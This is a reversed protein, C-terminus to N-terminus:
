GAVKAVAGAVTEGLTPHIHRTNLIPDVSGDGANMAVAVPHILDAAHYALIRAGLIRRTGKEVVVKVMGREEGWARAKGGSFESVGTGVDHGAERAEAETMGVMALEPDTFVARPGPDTDVEHPDLGLSNEAASVGMYRAVPTWAGYPPGVVDGAAFISSHTTELRDNVTIGKKGMEVGATELNLAATEPARGTAVVLADGELTRTTGAHTVVVRPGAQVEQIQAGTLIQLGEDVLYATLMEVIEPEESPLLRPLMEVMTVQSGLRSLAQGLELAIPGGGIMVIRDPRETLELVSDSTLFPVDALGPIPPVSPSAGTAVIIHPASLTTGNVEVDHSGSFRAEGDILDVGDLSELYSRAGNSGRDIIGRVRAMVAAFDVEVEGVRVGFEAARRAEHAVEASRILAKSPICGRVPCTGGVRDREILAVRKGADAARGTANIGAMGAGIVILDHTITTM